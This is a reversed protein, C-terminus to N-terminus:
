FIPRLCVVKTSNEIVTHKGNDFGFNYTIKIVAIVTGIIILKVVDDVGISLNM